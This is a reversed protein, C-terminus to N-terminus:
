FSMECNQLSSIGFDPSTLPSDEQQDMAPVKDSHGWITSPILSREPTEKRYVSIGNMLTGRKYVLWRKFGDGLVMVSPM